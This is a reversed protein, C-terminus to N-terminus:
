TVDKEVAEVLDAESVGFDRAIVDFVRSSVRNFEDQDLATFAISKPIRAYVKGDGAPVFFVKAFERIARFAPIMAAPSPIAIEIENFHGARVLLHARLDETTPFRHETEPLTQWLKAISAFFLRHHPSSRERKVQVRYVRGTVLKSLDASNCDAIEFGHGTFKLHIDM